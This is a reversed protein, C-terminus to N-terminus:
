RASLDAPREGRRDYCGHDMANQVRAEEFRKVYAAQQAANKFKVSGDAKICSEFDVGMIKKLLGVESPHCGSQISYSKAGYFHANGKHIERGDNHRPKVGSADQAHGCRSCTVIWGASETAVTEYDKGCGDCRVEVTTAIKRGM